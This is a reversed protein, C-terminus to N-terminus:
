SIVGTVSCFYKAFVRLLVNEDFYRGNEDSHKICSFVKTHLNTVVLYWNMCFLCKKEYESYIYPFIKMVLISHLATHIKVRQTTM